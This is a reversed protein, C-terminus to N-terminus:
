WVRVLDYLYRLVNHCLVDRLRIMADIPLYHKYRHINQRVGSFRLHRLSYLTRSRLTQMAM